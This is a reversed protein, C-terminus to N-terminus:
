DKLSVTGVILIPRLHYFAAHARLATLNTARRTSPQASLTATALALFVTLTRRSMECRDRRIGHRGGRRIRHRGHQIRFCRDVIIKRPSPGPAIALAAVTM